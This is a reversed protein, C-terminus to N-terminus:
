LIGPAQLIPADIEPGPTAPPVIESLQSMRICVCDILKFHSLRVVRSWHSPLRDAYHQM